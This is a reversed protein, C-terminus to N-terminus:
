RISLSSKICLGTNMLHLNYNTQIQIVTKVDKEQKPFVLKSGKLIDMFSNGKADLFGKLIRLGAISVYKNELDHRLLKSNLESLAGFKLSSEIAEKLPDEMKIGIDGM